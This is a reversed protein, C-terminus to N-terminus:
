LSSKRHSPNTQHPAPGVLPIQDGPTPKNCRQHQQSLAARGANTLHLRDTMIRPNEDMRKVLLGERVLSAIVRARAGSFQYYSAAAGREGSRLAHELIERRAKTLKPM